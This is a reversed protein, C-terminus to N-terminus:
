LVFNQLDTCITVSTPSLANKNISISNFRPIDKDLSLSYNHLKHMFKLTKQLWQLTALNRAAM